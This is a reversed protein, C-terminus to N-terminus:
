ATRRWIYMVIYPQMNNHSAGGGASGTNGTGSAGTYGGNNSSTTGSITHNHGGSSTALGLLINNGTTWEAGNAAGSVGGTLRYSGGGTLPYGLVNHAHDGNWSTTGNWSHTHNPTSHTHSPGRHTHGPIQNITLTVTSSGGTDGATPYGTGLGIICRGEAERTWTTGPWTTGPNTSDKTIYISGVPYVVDIIAKVATKAELTDVRTEVDGIDTTNADVTDCIANVVSKIENMDTDSVRNINAVTPEILPVKNEYTIKQLAM